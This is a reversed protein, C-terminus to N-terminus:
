PMNDGSVHVPARPLPMPGIFGIYREQFRRELAAVSEPDKFIDRIRYQSTVVIRTPRIVAATGKIECRFKHHDAWDKLFAQIWQEHTPDLDDIIVVPEYQYGDWWKNRMKFYAGPNEARALTSKGTGTPGWLWHNDLVAISDPCDDSLQKLRIKDIAQSYKFRIEAPIDEIRGERAAAYADEWRQATAAGGRSSGRVRAEAPVVTTGREYVDGDKKCYEISAAIDRAVSLHCGPLLVIVRRGTKASAFRIYGQLHRTGEAGVERGYVIHACDLESYRREDDEEYNNHTFCWSRARLRTISEM